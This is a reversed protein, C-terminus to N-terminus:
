LLAEVRFTEPVRDRGELVLDALVEAALPAMGFGIKFGGNAVYHGPRGPWAGLVLQRSVARPRIGAWREVVPADALCPMVTRARTMLAEAQGDPAESEWQNESTSGVAVTGDAHPVIHLGGAYIQPQGAADHRLRAAQGKVGGGLRKGFAESLAELGRWGSAHVVAGADEAEAVVEGGRLAAALASCAGRPSVRASLTDRLVWGSPSLPEWAAGSAREVRWEAAGGWHAAAGETRGRAVEVAAADALPQVRGSRLYGPDVGGAERVGAWWAEAMLLSELQFAKLGNWAEPVHPALAGVLGASAGAGLGEPAVIRVRAGRRACAWAVSLGFVGAGRVTVDVSAM